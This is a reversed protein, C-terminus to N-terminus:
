LTAHHSIFSIPSLMKRYFLILFIMFVAQRKTNTTLFCSFPLQHFISSLMFFLSFIFTMFVNEFTESPFILLNKKRVSNRTHFLIWPPLKPTFIENLQYAICYKEFCKKFKKKREKQVRKLNVKASWNCCVIFDFLKKKTKTLNWKATELNENKIEIKMNPSLIRIVWSVFSYSSKVLLLFSSNYIYFM